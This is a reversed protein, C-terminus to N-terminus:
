YDWNWTYIGLHTESQGQDPGPRGRSGVAAAPHPICNYSHSLQIVQGSMVTHRMSMHTQTGATYTLLLLPHSLFRKLSSQVLVTSGTWLVHLPTVHDGLFEGPAWLRTQSVLCLIVLVCCSASVRLSSLFIQFEGGM